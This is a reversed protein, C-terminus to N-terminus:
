VKLGGGRRSETRTWIQCQQGRHFPMEGPPDLRQTVRSQLGLRVVDHNEWLFIFVYVKVYCTKSDPSWLLSLLLNTPDMHAVCCVWAPEWKELLWWFFLWMCVCLAMDLFLLVSWSINSLMLMLLCIPWWIKVYKFPCATSLWAQISICHIPSINALILREIM